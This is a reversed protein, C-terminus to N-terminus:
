DEHIEVQEEFNTAATPSSDNSTASLGAIYVMAVPIDDSIGFKINRFSMSTKGEYDLKFIEAIFQVLAANYVIFDKDNSFSCKTSYENLPSSSLVLYGDNGYITVFVDTTLSLQEALRKTLTISKRNHKACVINVSYAGGRRSQAITPIQTAQMQTLSIGENITTTAKTSM